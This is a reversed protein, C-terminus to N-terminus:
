RVDVVASAAGVVTASEHWGDPTVPLDLPAALRVTVVTGTSSVEWTLGPHSSAADVTRLYEAVFARAAVPDVQAQAGLGATYVQEGQVGDAAALVAGDALATMAQRELYAASADVVVAVLLAVVVTFGVVLLTVTGSEDLRRM